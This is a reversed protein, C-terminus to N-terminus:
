CTGVRWKGLSGFRRGRDRFSGFAAQCSIFGRGHGVGVVLAGKKFGPIVVVCDASGLAGARIDHGSKTMANLVATAKGLRETTDDARAATLVAGFTLFLLYHAKRM